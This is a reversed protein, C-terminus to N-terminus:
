ASAPAPSAGNEGLEARFYAEIEATFAQVNSPPEFRRGLRSQGTAMPYLGFNTDGVTITPARAADDPLALMAARDADVLDIPRAKITRVVRRNRVFHREGLRSVTRQVTSRTSNGTITSHTADPRSTDRLASGAIASHADVRTLYVPRSGAVADIEEVTPAVPQPWRTEDWGHGWLM